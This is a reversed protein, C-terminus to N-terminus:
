GSLPLPSRTGQSSNNNCMSAEILDIFLPAIYVKQKRWQARRNTVGQVINELLLDATMHWRWSLYVALSVNVVDHPAFLRVFARASRSRTLSLFSSALPRRPLMVVPECVLEVKSSAVDWVRWPCLGPQRATRIWMKCCGPCLSQGRKASGGGAERVSLSFIM